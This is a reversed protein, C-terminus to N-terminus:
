FMTDAGLVPLKTCTHYKSGPEVRTASCFVTLVWITLAMAYGCVARKSTAGDLSADMDDGDDM